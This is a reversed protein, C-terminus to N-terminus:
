FLFNAGAIFFFGPSPFGFVEEYRDNLINGAKGFVKVSRPHGPDNLIFDYAMSLDWRVYGPNTGGGLSGAPTGGVFRGDTSILPLLERQSSVISLTSDITLNRWPNSSLVANFVHAPVNPLPEGLGSSEDKTHTFTYNAGVTLRPHIRLTFGTELGTSFADNFNDGLRTILNDFDLYFFTAYLMARDGIRQEYGAEYSQSTQPRLNPNGSIPNHLQLITPPLFGEGYAGHFKGGIEPFILALAVRPSLKGGYDSNQDWRFGADFYLREKYELHYQFYPAYNQRDGPIGPAPINDNPPIFPGLTDPQPPPDGPFLEGATKVREDYFEFGATVTQKVGGIEPLFFFQRLDVSQRSEKISNLVSNRALGIGSPTVVISDGIRSNKEEIDSLYFGYVLETRFHKNWDYTLQLSETTLLSNFVRNVDLALPLLFGEPPLSPDYLPPPAVLFERALNKRSLFIHSALTLRLNEAPELDWHQTLATEGFYDNFFQGQQDTRSVGVSWRVSPKANEYGLWERAHGLNGGELSLHTEAPATGSKSIINIVGGVASGGYLVAQSGRLVEIRDIQEVPILSLNSENTFPSNLRVGDLLVLTDAPSAGRLRVNASEGRTGLTQVSVGPLERLAEAVSRDVRRQIEEGTVVSISHATTRSPEAIKRATVVVQGLNGNSDKEEALVLASCLLAPLAALVWFWSPFKFSM